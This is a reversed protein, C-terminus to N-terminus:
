LVPIAPRADGDEAMGDRRLREVLRYKGLVSEAIQWEQGSTSYEGGAPSFLRHTGASRCSPLPSFGHFDAYEIATGFAIM